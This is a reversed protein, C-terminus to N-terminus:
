KEVEMTKNIMEKGSKTLIKGFTPTEVQQILGEIQLQQLIKRVINRSGSCKKSPRVGRDKRGGYMKALKNTGIPGFKHIKKLISASRIFWWDNNIPPREKSVGTKVFVSWTPPTIKNLTKIENILKEM